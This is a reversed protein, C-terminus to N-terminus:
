PIFVPATIVSRSGAACETLIDAAACEHRFMVLRIDQEQMPFAQEQEHLIVVPMLKIQSITEM